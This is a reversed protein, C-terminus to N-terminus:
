TDTVRRVKEALSKYRTAREEALQVIAERWDKPPERHAKASGALRAQRISAVSVGLARALDAHDIRDFLEDTADKFNMYASQNVFGHRDMM